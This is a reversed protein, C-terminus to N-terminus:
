EIKALTIAINARQTTNSNPKVTVAFSTELTPKTLDFYMTVPADMSIEPFTTMITLVMLLPSPLSIVASNAIKKVTEADAPGIKVLLADALVISTKEGDFTILAGGIYKGLSSLTLESEMLYFDSGSFDYQTVMYNGILKFTAYDIEDIKEDKNYDKANASTLWIEYPSLEPNLYAIYDGYDITRDGNLDKAYDSALWELFARYIAFDADNIEGDENYDVAKTSSKWALYDKYDDSLFIEYDEFTIKEDSNLDLAEDSAVWKLFDLYIWYDDMGIKRDGDYDAADESLRWTSYGKFLVYDDYNIKRDGNFDMADDSSLWEMYAKHIEFDEEDIKGDDNYDKADKSQLWIEFESQSSEVSEVSDVSEAPSSPTPASPESSVTPDNSPQPASSGGPLSTTTCSALFLPLALVLLSKKM